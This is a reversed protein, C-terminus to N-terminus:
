AQGGLKIAQQHRYRRENLVYSVMTAIITKRPLTWLARHPSSKGIRKPAHIITM